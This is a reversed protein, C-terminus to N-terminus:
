RGELYNDLDLNYGGAVPGSLFKELGSIERYTLRASILKSFDRAELRQRVKNIYQSIADRLKVRQAEDALMPDVKSRLSRIIASLLSNEGAEEYSRVVDEYMDQFLFWVIPEDHHFKKIYEPDSFIFKHGKTLKEDHIVDIGPVIAMGLVRLARNATDTTPFLDPLDMELKRDIHYTVKYENEYKKKLEPLDSLFYAPLAAAFNLLWIRYPDGTTSFCHDTTIRHKGKISEVLQGYQDRGSRQEFVGLNIIKDYQKQQTPNLRSRNFSWLASALRFLDNFQQKLYGEYDGQKRGITELAEQLTVTNLDKLKDQCYGVFWAALGQERDPSKKLFFEPNGIKNDTKFEEYPIDISDVLSVAKDGVRYVVTNGYGVLILNSKNKLNSLLEKEASFHGHLENLAARLAKVVMSNEAISDPKEESCKKLIHTYFRSEHELRRQNKLESFYRIIELSWSSMIKKRSGGIYPIYTAGKAEQLIGAANERINLARDNVENLEKQAEAHTESILEKAAALWKYLYGSGLTKNKRIEEVKLSIAMEIEQIFNQANDDWAARLKKELGKESQDFYAQAMQPFSKEAIMFQELSFSIQTRFPSVKEMIVQRNLTNLHNEGFFDAVDQRIAQDLQVHSAQDGAQREVESLALSCLNLANSASIYSHLEKAPYYMCSLGISSYRGQRGDWNEPQSLNVHSLLNDVVSAVPDGMSGASLFISNAVTECLDGVDSINEGYENRGDILNVLSYPPITVQIDEGAYNVSYPTIGKAGFTVSQLHDLECLAAYVNGPVRFAFAKDRYIWHLLFFGHILANPIRHRLLIGLDLFTGSGTGGALSGCVYIEPPSASLEFNINAGLSNRANRMIEDLKQSNLGDVLHGIRRKVENLHAFLAVRGVQRVAGAGKHIAGAPMPKTFWDRATSNNIFETPQDVVMHLFEREDLSYYGNKLASKLSIPSLDTDLSLLKISPPLVGYTDNFLKKLHTLILKGAGGLGILLTKKFVPRAENM